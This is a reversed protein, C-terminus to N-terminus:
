MPFIEKILSWKNNENIYYRTTTYEPSSEIPAQVAIINAMGNRTTDIACM